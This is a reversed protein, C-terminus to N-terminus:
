NILVKAAYQKAKGDKGIHLEKVSSLTLIICVFLVLLVTAFVVKTQDGTTLEFMKEWDLASVLSGICSGAGELATFISNGIDSQQTTISDVLYSRNITNTMYIWSYM